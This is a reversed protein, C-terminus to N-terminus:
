IAQSNKLNFKIILFFISLALLFTLFFIITTTLIYPYLKHFTYNIVPDVINVQVKNVNQPKKLEIIFKDLLENTLKKILM